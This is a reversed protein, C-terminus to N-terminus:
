NGDSTRNQSRNRPQQAQDVLVRALERLKINQTRSVRVLRQFAHDPNCGYRAMIIGKAQDIAARSTLAEELQGALTTLHERERVQHILAAVASALLEVAHIDLDVFVEPETAYANIVGVPEDGVHVPVALVSAVENPAALRALEPWRSDDALRHTVVVQRQEWAEQCPGERAQIQLGDMGQALMSDSGLASPNAPPGLAVSVAVDPAFVEACIQAAENLYQRQDTRSTLVALRSLAEAVKEVHGGSSPAERPLMIWTVRPRDPGVDPGCSVVLKLRQASGTRPQIACMLSRGRGEALTRSLARRVAPRDETGVFAQLPKLLLTAQSIGLLGCVAANATKIRGERDTVLAAVALDAILREQWWEDSHSHGLLRDIEEQQTQLEEEAVRLEEHATDLETVISEVALRDLDSGEPWRAQGGGAHPYNETVLGTHVWCWCM